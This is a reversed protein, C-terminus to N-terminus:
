VKRRLGKPLHNKITNGNRKGVGLPYGDFYIGQFGDKGKCIMKEESIRLEEGRLYRLADEEFTLNVGNEAEEFSSAKIEAHSPIYLKQKKKDTLIEGEPLGTRLIHLNASSLRREMQRIRRDPSITDPEKEIGGEREFVCVYHGEGKERHPWFRRETLIRFGHYTETLLRAQEENESPEFTCTSYLLKGGPKVMKVAESLIERQREVCLAANEPSWESVAIEDRRMMGEGSCPADCIVVDFTEPFCSSLEAPSASTVIVNDYGMREINSSLIKARKSIIENSLLVGSLEAARTSKGGPAACLDLVTDSEQIGALECVSMASPEQIYYVGADHYPSLGPREAESYYYGFPAWPIKELNWERVLKEITEPRVKKENFRLGRYPESEYCQLFEGYEEGLLKRMNELYDKPLDKM